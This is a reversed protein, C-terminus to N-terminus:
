GTTLDAQMVCQLLEDRMHHNNADDRALATKAAVHLRDDAKKRVGGGDNQCKLWNQAAAKIENCGGTYDDINISALKEVASKLNTSEM